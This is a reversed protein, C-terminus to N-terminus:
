SNIYLKTCIFEVVTMLHRGRLQILIAVTFMIDSLKSLLNPILRFTSSQLKWDQWHIKYGNVAKTVIWIHSFLTFRKVFKCWVGVSCNFKYPKIALHSKWPVNSQRNFINNAWKESRFYIVIRMWARGLQTTCLTMPRILYHNTVRRVEDSSFTKLCYYAEAM